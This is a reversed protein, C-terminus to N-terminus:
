IGLPYGWIELCVDWLILTVCHVRETFSLRMVRNEGSFSKRLSCLQKELGSAGGLVFGTAHGLLFPQLHADLDPRPVIVDPIVKGSSVLAEYTQNTIRRASLELEEFKLAHMSLEQVDVAKARLLGKWHQLGIVKELHVGGASVYVLGKKTEGEFLLLDSELGIPKGDVGEDVDLFAFLPLTRGSGEDILFLSAHETDM